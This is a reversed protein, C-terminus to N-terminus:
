PRFPNRTGTPSTSATAFRMLSNISFGLSRQVIPASLRLYAVSFNSTLLTSTFKIFKRFILYSSINSEMHEVFWLVVQTRVKFVLLSISITKLSLPKIIKLGSNKRSNKEQIKAGPVGTRKEYVRKSFFPFSNSNNLSRTM